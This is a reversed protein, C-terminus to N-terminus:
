AAHTPLPNREPKKGTMAWLLVQVFAMAYLLAAWALALGVAWDVAAKFVPDIDLVLFCVALAVMVPILVWSLIAHKRQWPRYLSLMCFPALLYDGVWGTEGLAMRGRALTRPVLRKQFIVYAKVIGLLIILGFLFYDFAAIPYGPPGQGADVFTLEYAKKLLRYGGTGFLAGLLLIGWLQALTKGAPQRDAPSPADVLAAESVAAEKAAPIRRIV